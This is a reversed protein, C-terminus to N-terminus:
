YGFIFYYPIFGVGLINEAFAWGLSGKKYGTTSSRDVGGCFDAMRDWPMSYYIFDYDSRTTSLTQNTIASPIGVTFIYTLGMRREQVGHGWEHNLDTLDAGANLYITGFLQMSSNGISHRIVYEGKYFSFVNSNLATDANQNFPNFCGNNWDEVVENWRGQCAAVVVSGVSEIIGIPNLIGLITESWEYIARWNWTAPNWWKTGTPDVNMVPNNGCYAFLNLGNITESDAYTIGDINIFRGFRPNYYRTKLFYLRTETDFYYGRYRFPNLYAIETAYLHTKSTIIDHNGWADYLYKVVESGNIDLLAIINGQIDKRYFYSGKSCNFGLLGTHDYFFELGNSSYILRGMSDYYFKIDNKRTRRGSADYEFSTDGFKILKRDRDWECNIGMYSTPNGISDYVFEGAFQDEITSVEILQDKENYSFAIVYGTGPVHNGTTYDSQEKTLINGNNDYTYFLSIGAAQNDERILRNLSDYHYQTANFGESIKSINCLKDYSYIITSYTPKPAGVISNSDPIITGINRYRLRLPMHTAHDNEKRYTIYMDEITKGNFQVTKGSNRGNKDRTPSVTYLGTKLETLYGEAGEFYSYYNHRNIIGSCSVYSVNGRTDYQFEESYNIDQGTITYKKINEFNDRLYSTVTQGIFDETQMINGNTNYKNSLILNNNFYSKDFSGARDCVTKFSEGNANTYTVKDVCYGEENVKDEYKFSGYVTGNYNITSVRRKSDYEYQIKNDGSHNAEITEGCSYRVFNGNELGDTTGTLAIMREEADYSYNLYSVDSKNVQKVLNTGDYYSYYNRNLGTEDHEVVLQGNSNYSNSTYYIDTASTSSCNCNASEEHGTWELRYKKTAAVCGNGDDYIYEEVDAHEKIIECDDVNGATTLDRHAFHKITKIMESHTLSYSYTTVYVFAFQCKANGVNFYREETTEKIIKGSANYEYNAILNKYSTESINTGTVTIKVPRNYEDLETKYTEGTEFIFKGYTTKNLSSTKASIKTSDTYALYEYKEAKSVLTNTIEYYSDIQGSKNFIYIIQDNDDNTIITKDSELDYSIRVKSLETITNDGAPIKSTTSNNVITSLRSDFTDDNSYNLESSTKDSSSISSIAKASMGDVKISTYTFELTKYIVENTGDEEVTCYHVKLLNNNGIANYEYRVKKHHTDFISELLGSSSYTFILKNNNEDWVQTIRDSSDYDIVIYNSFEDNIMVLNGKKNFGKTLKNGKLWRVPLVTENSDQNLIQKYYINNLVKSTPQDYFIQNEVTQQECYAFNGEYEMYKRLPDGTIKSIEEGKIYVRKNENSLYYFNANFGHQVGISDTYIHTKIIPNSHVADLDLRENLSLRFNDGYNLGVDEHSFIHSLSLGLLNSKADFDTFGVASQGTAVDLNAAVGGALSFNKSQTLAAPSKEKCLYLLVSDSFTLTYDNYEFVVELIDEDGKKVEGVYAFLFAYKPIVPVVMNNIFIHKTKETPKPGQTRTLYLKIGASERDGLDIQSKDIKMITRYQLKDTSSVNIYNWNPMLEWNSWIDLANKTRREVRFSVSPKQAYISIPLKVISGEYSITVYKDAMSLPSTAKITYDTIQVTKGNDYSATVEMGTPDFSEGKLYRLKNPNKTIALSILEPGIISLNLISFLAEDMFEPNAVIKFSANGVADYIKKLDIIYAMDIQNLNSDILQNTILSYINFTNHFVKTKGMLSLKCEKVEELSLGRSSILGEYDVEGYLSYEDTLTLGEMEVIEGDLTLNGLKIFQEDAVANSANTTVSMVKTATKNDNTLSLQKVDNQSKVEQSSNKPLIVANKKDAEAKLSDIFSSISKKM